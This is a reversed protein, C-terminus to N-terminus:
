QKRPRYTKILQHYQSKRTLESHEGIYTESKMFSLKKPRLLHGRKVKVQFVTQIGLNTLFISSELTYHAVKNM